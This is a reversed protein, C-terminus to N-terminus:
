CLQSNEDSFIESLLVAKHIVSDKEKDGKPWMDCVCVCVCVCVCM